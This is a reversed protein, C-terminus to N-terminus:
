EAAAHQPKEKTGLSLDGRDSRGARLKGEYRELQPLIGLLLEDVELFLRQIRGEFYHALCAAPIAVCLGAFTTILAIYIGGALEAARNGSSIGSATQHFAVIMGQVTGLLGLLPAVAVSLTLPRVNSYLRAAERESADRVAQELEAQPRGVKLLAARLVTAAASPHKQCIRYARRPDVGGKDDAMAGLDAVLEAPITKSRRLAFAREFAFAVVVLSLLGIPIMLPGGELQLWLLNPGEKPAPAAPQPPEAQSQSALAADARRQAEDMSPAPGADTPAQAMTQPVAFLLLLVALRLRSFALTM